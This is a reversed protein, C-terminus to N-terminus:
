CTGFAAGGVQALRPKKRLRSLDIPVDDDDDPARPWGFRLAYDALLTSPDVVVRKGMLNSPIDYGRARCRDRCAQDLVVPRVPNYTICLANQGDRYPPLVRPAAAASAMSHVLFTQKGSGWHSPPARMCWAWLKHDKWPLAYTEHDFYGKTPYFGPGSARKGPPARKEVLDFGALQRDHYVNHLAAATEVGGPVIDIYLGIGATAKSIGHPMQGNFLIIHDKPFIVEVPEITRGAATQTWFAPGLSLFYNNSKDVKNVGHAWDVAVAATFTAHDHGPRYRVGCFGRSQTPVPCIVGIFPKGRSSIPPPLLHPVHSTLATQHCPLPCAIPAYKIKDLGLGTLPGEYHYKAGDVGLQEPRTRVWMRNHGLGHHRGDSLPAAADFAAAVLPGLHAHLPSTYVNVMGSGLGAVPNRRLVRRIRRLKAPGQSRWDWLGQTAGDDGGVEAMPKFVHGGASSEGEWVNLPIKGVLAIAQGCVPVPLPAASFPEGTQLRAIAAALSDATYLAPDLRKM